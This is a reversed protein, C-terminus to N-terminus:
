KLYITKSFSGTVSIQLSDRGKLDLSGISDRVNFYYWGAPLKSLIFRGNNDAMGSVFSGECANAAAVLSNNFVCVRAGTLVGNTASDRAILTLINHQTPAPTLVLRVLANNPNVVMGKAYKLGNHEKEAYVYYNMNHLNTFRFGGAANTKVQYLFNSSASDKEFKIQVLQNALPTEIGLGQLTDQMLAIGEMELPGSLDDATPEKCNTAFLLILLFCTYTTSKM